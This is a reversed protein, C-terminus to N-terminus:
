KRFHDETLGDATVIVVPGIVLTIGMAFAIVAAPVEAIFFTALSIGAVIVSM